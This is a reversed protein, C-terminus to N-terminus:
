ARVGAQAAGPEWFTFFIRGTARDIALANAAPCDELGRACALLGDAADFVAGPILELPEIRPAGTERRLLYVVGIHTMFLLDGKKTFQASLPVGNISTEWLLNGARDFAHMAEGDALFIRGDRDLLASS